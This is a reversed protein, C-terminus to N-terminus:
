DTLIVEVSKTLKEFQVETLNKRYFLFLRLFIKKENKDNTTRETTQVQLASYDFSTASTTLGAAAEKWFLSVFAPGTKQGYVWIYAM